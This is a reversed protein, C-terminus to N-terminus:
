RSLPHSRQQSAGSPVRPFGGVSTATVEVGSLSADPSSARRRSRMRRTFAGSGPVPCPRFHVRDRDIRYSPDIGTMMGSKCRGALTTPELGLDSAFCCNYRRMPVVGKTEVVAEGRKLRNMLVTPNERTINSFCVPIHTKFIIHYTFRSDHLPTYIPRNRKATDQALGCVCNIKKTINNRAITLFCSRKRKTFHWIIPPKKVLREVDRNNTLEARM